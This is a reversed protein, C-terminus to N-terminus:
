AGDEADPRRPLRERKALEALYQKLEHDRFQEWEQEREVQKMIECFPDRPVPATQKKKDTASM